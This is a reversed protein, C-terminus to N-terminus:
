FANRWLIFHSVISLVVLCAVRSYTLKPLVAFAIVGLFPAFQLIYRDYLPLNGGVGLQEAIFFAVVLVSLIAHPNSLITFREKWLLSGLAISNFITVSVILGFAVFDGGPVRSASHILSLLPGPQLLSAGFLAASLGGILAALFAPLRQPPKLRQMAPFTPPILYVCTYFSTVLPRFLNLGVGAKWNEYSMGNAM